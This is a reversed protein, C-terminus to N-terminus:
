IFVWSSVMTWCCRVESYAGYGDRCGSCTVTMGLMVCFFSILSDGDTVYWLSSLCDSFCMGPSEARGFISLM